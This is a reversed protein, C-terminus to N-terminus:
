GNPGGQHYLKFIRKKYKFEVQLLEYLYWREDTTAQNGVMKISPIYKKLTKEDECNKIATILRLWYISYEKDTIRMRNLYMIVGKILITLCM